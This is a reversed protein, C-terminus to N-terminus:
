NPYLINLCRLAKNSDFIGTFCIKKNEIFPTSQDFHNLYNKHGQKAKKIVEEYSGENVYAKLLQSKMNISFIRAQYDLYQSKTDEASINFLHGVPNKIEDFNINIDFDALGEYFLKPPREMYDMLPLFFDSYLTNLILNPKIMKAPLDAFFVNILLNKVKNKHVTKQIMRMKIKEENHWAKVTSLEYQNLTELSAFDSIDNVTLWKMALAANIFELHESYMHVFIMKAILSDSQALLRKLNYAEKKLMSVIHEKEGLTLNKISLIYKIKQGNVLVKFPLVPSPLSAVWNSTDSYHDYSMFNDYRTVLEQYPKTLQIQRDLNNIIETFCALEILKCFDDHSPMSIKEYQSLFSDDYDDVYDYNNNAILLEKAIELGTQYVNETKLDIAWGYVYANNQWVPETRNELFNIVDQHLQVDDPSNDMISQTNLETNKIKEPANKELTLSNLIVSIFFIFLLSQSM